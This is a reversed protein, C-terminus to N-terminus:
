LFILQTGNYFYTFPYTSVEVSITARRVFILLGEVVCNAERSVWSKSVGPVLSVNVRPRVSFDSHTQFEIKGEGEEWGKGKWLRLRRPSRETVGLLWVGYNYHPPRFHGKVRLQSGKCVWTWETWLSSTTKSSSPFFNLSGFFPNTPSPSPVSICRCLNFSILNNRLWKRKYFCNSLGFQEIVSETVLPSITRGRWGKISLCKVRVSPCSHTLM